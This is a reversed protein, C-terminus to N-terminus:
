PAVPDFHSSSAKRSLAEILVLCVLVVIAVVIVAVPGPHSLVVLTTIGAGAVVICLPSRSRFVFTAIASPQADPTRRRGRFLGVISGRIKTAAHGPGALWAGIAAVIGLVFVARLATRLFELLQDYVHAAADRNVDPGLADLYISRAVNFATLLLAVALAVGLSTRLITRRRKGSLLVAVVFLAVTLIPLAIALKDFADVADQARSLQDSDLLVIQSNVRESDVGTFLDVGAKELAAKVKDVVPGLHVVVQGNKTEVNGRGTGELVAVVQTHARRNAQEWLTAFQDSQVLRRAVDHVLREIGDAVARASVPAGAPLAAALRTELDTGAVLSNTIRTAVAERVAPDHALPAVTAVYQDTDLVTDHLWVALVSVPTLICVLVVLLAVVGRRWRAVPKDTPTAASSDHELTSAGV